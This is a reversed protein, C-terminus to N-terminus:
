LVKLFHVRSPPFTDGFIPQSNLTRKREGGGERVCMGERKGGGMDGMGSRAHIRIFIHGSLKRNRSDNWAMVSM